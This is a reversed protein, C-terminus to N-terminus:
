PFLEYFSIMIKTELDREPSMQSIKKMNGDITFLGNCTTQLKGARGPTYGATVSPYSPVILDPPFVQLVNDVVTTKKNQGPDVDLIKGALYQTKGKTTYSIVPFLSITYM